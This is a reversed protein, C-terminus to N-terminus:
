RLLRAAMCLTYFHNRSNAQRRWYHKPFSKASSINRAPLASVRRLALASNSVSSSRWAPIFAFVAPVRCASDPFLIDYEIYKVLKFRSIFIVRENVSHGNFFLSSNSFDCKHNEHTTKFEYLYTSYAEGVVTM